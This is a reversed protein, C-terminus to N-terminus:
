LLSRYDLADPPDSMSPLVAVRQKQRASALAFALLCFVVGLRV